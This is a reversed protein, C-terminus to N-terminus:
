EIPMAQDMPPPRAAVARGAGREAGRGLRIGQRTRVEFALESQRVPLVAIREGDGIERASVEQGAVREEVSASVATIPNSRANWSNPNGAAIRVSLPMGNEEALARYPRLLSDTHHSRRPIRISRM